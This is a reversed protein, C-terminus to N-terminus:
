IFIQGLISKSQLEFIRRDDPPGAWDTTNISFTIDWVLGTVADLFPCTTPLSDACLIYKQINQPDSQYLNTLISFGDTLIYGM